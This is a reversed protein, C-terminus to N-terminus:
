GRRPVAAWYDFDLVVQSPYEGAETKDPFDSCPLDKTAVLRLRLAGLDSRGPFAYADLVESWAFLTAGAFYPNVHRGGNIALMLGANELGNFSLARATSIVVGGYVLGGGEKLMKQYMPGQTVVEKIAKPMTQGFRKMGQPTFNDWGRGSFWHTAVNEVHPLPNWFISGAMFRNASALGEEWNSLRPGLFDEIADALKPSVYWGELQPHDVKRWGAPVPQNGGDRMAHELFDPSAKLEEFYDANRKAARLDALAKAESAFANKYYETDTHQEIESTHAQKIEWDRGGANIRAGPKLDDVPTMPSMTHSIPVGKKNEMVTMKDGDIHVVKRAGDPTEIAFYKREKLSPASTPLRRSGGVPNAAAGGELDDYVRTKGKVMRHMHNADEVPYGLGKLDSYLQAREQRMPQITTDFVQQEEPTLQVSPDGEGFKFFKEQMEPTRAAPPVTEAKKSIDIRDAVGSQRLRFLDDAVKTRLEKPADLVEKALPPAESVAGEVTMPKAAKAGVGKPVSAGPLATLALDFARKQAEPTSIDAKGTVVDGPLTVAGYIDKAMRAPWTTPLWEKVIEGVGKAEPKSPAAPALPSAVAAAGVTPSARGVGGVPEQVVPADTLPASEWASKKKAPPADLLPASEWANPM